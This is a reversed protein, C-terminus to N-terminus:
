TSLDEHLITTSKLSFDRRMSLQASGQAAFLKVHVYSDTLSGACSTLAEQSARLSLLGNEYRQQLLSTHM